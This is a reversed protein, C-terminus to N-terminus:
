LFGAIGVWFAGVVIAAAAMLILAVVPPLVGIMPVALAAAAFGGLVLAGEGGILILGIRAPIAVALATLILPAARQLTNQFSFSTGFGGRWVLEFFDYPSKGVFLLFISFLIMSITISLLPIFVYESGRRIRVWFDSTASSHTAFVPSITQATETM